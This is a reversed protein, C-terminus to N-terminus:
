STFIRRVVTGQTMAAAGTRAFPRQPHAVLIAEEDYMHLADGDPHRM